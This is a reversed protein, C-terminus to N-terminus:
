LSGRHLQLPVSHSNTERPSCHTPHLLLSSLKSTRYFPIVSVSKTNNIPKVHHSVISKLTKRDSKFTSLNHFQVYFSVSSNDTNEDPPPPCIYKDMCIRVTKDVIAQPYNCNAFIQKLRNIELITETWTSSLKLARYVLTKITSVKYQDLTYSKFDIYSGNNTPKIYVSTTIRNNSLHMNVDLFHFNDDVMTEHTFNLVSNSILRRKFHSLHNNSRFVTLIDDVYRVYFIPNSIKDQSLVYNELSSMYFDAFTPGLPSGMSVGDTQLYTRGSFQFPTESTCITLLQRLEQEDIPPPPLQNHHYAADIIIDITTTVPVNTFLSEVDLSSLKQNPKFSYHKWNSSSSM